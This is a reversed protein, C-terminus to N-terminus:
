GNDIKTYTNIIESVMDEQDEPFKFPSIYKKILDRDNTRAALVYGLYFLAM